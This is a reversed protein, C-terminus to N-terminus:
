TKKEKLNRKEFLVEMVFNGITWGEAKALADLQEYYEVRFPITKWGKHPM